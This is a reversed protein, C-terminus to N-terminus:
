ILFHMLKRYLKVCLKDNAGAQDNPSAKARPAALCIRARDGLRPDTVTTGRTRGSTMIAGIMQCLRDLAFEVTRFKASPRRGANVM